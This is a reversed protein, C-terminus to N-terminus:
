TAVKRRTKTRPESLCPKVANANESGSGEEGWAYSGALGATRINIAANVDRDLEFGCAECHFTRDSLKLDDKVHGCNSCTKSSPFYRGVVRLSNKWIKSKYELQRRFGGWGADAIRRALKRNSGMNKVALDEIAIAQNESCLRTTLKHLFDNRICVIRYHLRALKAAAKKRNKSGKQKRSLSRSLRRLKQLNSELSKPGTIKEGTSLTAFSNIGLDAGVTHNSARYREFDGVDVQISVFWKDAIRKVTASMIKGCFRLSEHLRVWGIRPIRICKQRVLFQDNALYFSDNAGKKHFIPRSALKKFFKSFANGINSFPRSHADRHIDKLWPFLEYKVSNFQKQLKMWTPKEGAAYQRNWEALAWNYVFRATGAARAFYERQKITPDLQIRHSLIM